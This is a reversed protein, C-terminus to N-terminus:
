RNNTGPTVTGGPRVERFIPIPKSANLSKSDSCTGFVNTASLMITYANEAPFVHSPNQGPDTTGDGFDWLWSTPGHLSEDTFQVPQGAAPKDPLWSFVVKPWPGPKTSIAFPASWASERDDADWVKVRVTYDTTYDFRGPNNQSTDVTGSDSFGPTPVPTPTPTPLPTPTAPTPTPVPTPTPTPVPTPPPDVCKNGSRVYGPNCGIDRACSSRLVCNGAGGCFPNNDTKGRGYDTLYGNAPAVTFCYRWQAM